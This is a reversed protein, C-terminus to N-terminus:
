AQLVLSLMIYRRTNRRLRHLSGTRCTKRASHTSVVVFVDSKSGKYEIRLMLLLLWFLGDCADEDDDPLLVIFRASM